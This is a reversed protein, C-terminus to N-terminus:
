KYIGSLKRKFEQTVLSAEQQSRVIRPTILVVLETKRKNKNTEGFLFGIFPIKHLVPIGSKIYTNKENILGGLIITEGSQVAISSKIERTLIDPNGNTSNGAFDEVKQEVEMIVLGSANVRPKVSVTVGTKRQQITTTSIPTNSEGVGGTLPTSESTRLSVEDGVQISAEHNNLVMVSPSSIVNINDKNAQATLIAGIDQSKSLFAYGFGGTAVSTAVTAVEDFLSGGSSAFNDGSNQHSLFWKIGYKLEDKLTVDVITVDILVQLPMVDLQKIVQHIATYDQTTAVIILANNAEDAIIRVDGVNSISSNKQASLRSFPKKITQKKNTVKVTKRGGAVSASRNSQGSQSFIENLIDALELADVNQVRYVNVGGGSANNAKDLRLVWSKIERLTNQQHTIALLANLREIEIFQIFTNDGQGKQNFIQELEEIIKVADVNQLPFLGFSKGKMVDIDFADVMEIARTLETSVGAVLLMNRQSDSHLITKAKLLPKIIKVLEDVAVNKIPIVQIRHGSPMQRKYQQYTSFASGNLAENKPKIQYLGKNYTFVANNIDLLMELTPILEKETLARSTQLTVQGVVKPSLVYNKKLIDGLIVKIVESIDAGDFNLNYDGTKLSINETSRARGVFQGTGTFLEIKATSEGEDLSENSLEQYMVTIEEIPKVAELSIKEHLKPGILECGSLLLSAVWISSIYQKSNM